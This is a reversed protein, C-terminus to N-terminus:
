VEVGLRMLSDYEATRVRGAESILAVVLGDISRVQLVELAGYRGEIRHGVLLDKANITECSM